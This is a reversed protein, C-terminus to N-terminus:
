AEQLRDNFDAGRRDPRAIKVDRGDRMLRQALTRAGVEGASDADAAIIVERVSQPIAVYPLNTTSLACWVALEPCAQAISLGTEVGETIVLADGAPQLRVASGRYPGYIKRTPEVPAKSRADSCLWTISVAAFNGHADQLGVALAPFAYGYERHYLLPIFRLAPPVRIVIGRNRLYTEVITRSAARSNRWIGRAYEKREADTRTNSNAGTAEFLDRVRINLADCIAQISCDRFCHLLLRNGHQTISMREM